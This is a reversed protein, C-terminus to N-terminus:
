NALERSRKTAAAVARDILRALGDKAMLVNLAAQTTGGPSTVAERLRAPNAQSLRALEGSGAVTERALRLALEPALGAHQGAEALAEIM